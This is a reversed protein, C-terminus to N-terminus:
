YRLIASPGASDAFLHDPVRTAAEPFPIDEGLLHDLRPDDLLAM